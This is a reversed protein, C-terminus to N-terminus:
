ALRELATEIRALVEDKGLLELAPFLDPGFGQGTTVIRVPMMVKGFGVEQEAVVAELAAKLNAAKFEEVSLAAVKEQYAKVMDPSDAKWKKLAKEDYETPAEFFFSGMEVFEDVKSVREHLLSLVTSLYADDKTEFGVKEALAKVRPQLDEISTERIYHENYWMLKKHNFVAGGKSVRDLTFLECLEKM